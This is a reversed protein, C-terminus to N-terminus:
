DGRLELEDVVGRYRDRLESLRSFSTRPAVRLAPDIVSARPQFAQLVWRRAGSVLAAISDMETDDHWGPVITTRFEYDAAHLRILEVSELVREVATWGLRGRYHAPACKLDMAVYDLASIIERLREPCTGNTDLKILFGERRLLSIIEPLNDALTPEGGSLVVANVWLQRYRALVERLATEPLPDAPLNLLPRNHCFPCRLNCRPILLVAAMRGPWDVLSPSPVWAAIGIRTASAIPVASM